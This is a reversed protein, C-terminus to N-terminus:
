GTTRRRSIQAYAVIVFTAKRDKSVKLLAVEVAEVEDYTHITARASGFPLGLLWGAESLYKAGDTANPESGRWIAMLQEDPRHRGALTPTPRPFVIYSADSTVRVPLESPFWTKEM